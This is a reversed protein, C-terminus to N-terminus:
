PQPANEPAARALSNGNVDGLKPLLTEINDYTAMEKRADEPNAFCSYMLGLFATEGDHNVNDHAKLIEQIAQPFDRAM